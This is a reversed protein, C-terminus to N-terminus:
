GDPTDPQLSCNLNELSVNGASPPKGSVLRISCSVVTGIPIEKELDSFNYGPAVLYGQENITANACGAFLNNCKMTHGGIKDISAYPLAAAPVDHKVALDEVTTFYFPIGEVTEELAAVRNELPAAVAKIATYIRGGSAPLTEDPAVDGCPHDAYEKASALAEDKADKVATFIKGGSVVKTEDPAVDGTPNEVAQLRTELEDFLAFLEDINGEETSLRDLIQDWADETPSEPLVIRNGKAVTFTGAASSRVEGTQAYITYSVVGSLATVAQPVSYRWVTMGEGISGILSATQPIDEGTAGDVLGGFLSKGNPLTFTMYVASAAPFYSVVYIVSADNSNRGVRETVSQAVNGLEDLYILM